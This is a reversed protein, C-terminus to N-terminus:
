KGLQDRSTPGDQIAPRMAKFAAVLLYGIGLALQTVGTGTDGVTLRLAGFALWALGFILFSICIWRPTVTKL